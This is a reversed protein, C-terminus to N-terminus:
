AVRRRLHGGKTARDRDIAADIADLGIVITGDAKAKETEEDLSALIETMEAPTVGYETAPDALAVAFPLARREAIQAFLMNVADAPSLGLRQLIPVAASKHASDVRARFLTTPM